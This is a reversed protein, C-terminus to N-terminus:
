GLAGTPWRILLLDLLALTAILITASAGFWLAKRRPTDRRSSFEWLWTFLRLYDIAILLAFGIAALGIIRDRLGEIGISAFKKTVVGELQHGGPAWPDMGLFGNTGLVWRGADEAWIAGVVLFAALGGLILLMHRTVKARRRAIGVDVQAQIASELPKLNKAGIDSQEPSIPGSALRSDTIAHVVRSMVEPHNGWYGSHDAWPSDTNAVRLGM